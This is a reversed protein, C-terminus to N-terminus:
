RDERDFLSQVVISPFEKHALKRSNLAIMQNAQERLSANCVTCWHAGFSHRQKM